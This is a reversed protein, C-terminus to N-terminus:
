NNFTYFATARELEALQIQYDYTAIIRQLGSRTLRTRAEIFTVQNDLGQQYRRRVLRFAERSAAEELRTNDVVKSAADLEYWAEVVQLGIQLRTEEKQQILRDKELRAQQTRNRNSADFLTWRMLVSGQFFDADPDSLDYSTGQIGYDLVLNVEPLYTAKNRKVDQETAAILYNFQQLEERGQFAVERARDVDIPRDFRNVTDIEQIIRNYPQNLLFNFYAQAVNREKEALALDAEVQAVQARATFLENQTIQNYKYLSETTRLNEQVLDSAEQFLKVGEGAKMYNYYATKVEKVLERKYADVGLREAEALNGKIKQNYIIATNFIPMSARIFTEQETPRLFPDRANEINPFEPIVPYDPINDQNIQNILNLNDYVPNVLDGVPVEIIRGGRAVSYRANIDVSPFYLNRAEKLAQLAQQYSLNRQKLAVNSELAEMIYGELPNNLQAVLSFPSLLLLLRYLTKM